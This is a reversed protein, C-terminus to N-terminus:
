INYDICPFQLACTPLKNSCNKSVTTDKELVVIELGHIARSKLWYAAATGIFGGGIIVVDANEPYVIEPKKLGLLVPVDRTLINWTKTAPNIEKAFHRTCFFHKSKLSSQFIVNRVCFTIM